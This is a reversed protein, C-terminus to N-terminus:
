SLHTKYDHESTEGDLIYSFKDSDIVVHGGFRIGARFLNDQIHDTIRVDQTSPTHNGSPHNHVLMVTDAGLAKAADGMSEPSTPFSSAAPMGITAFSTHIITGRKLYVVSTVEM